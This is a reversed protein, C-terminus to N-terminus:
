GHGSLWAEYVDREIPFLYRGSPLQYGAMPLPFPFQRIGRAIPDNNPLFCFPWPINDVETGGTPYLWTYRGYYCHNGNEDLWRQLPILYGEGKGALEQSGSFNVRYQKSASERQAPDITAISLPAHQSNLQQAERQFAVQQQALEEALSGQKQQKPAAHPQPPAKPVIRALETPEATPQPTAAERQARKPQRQQSKQADLPSPNQRQPVPHSHQAIRVSSSAVMFTEEPREQATQIAQMRLAVGWAIVMWLMLNVFGSVLLSWVLTTRDESREQTEDAETIM